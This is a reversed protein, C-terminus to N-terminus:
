RAQAAREFAEALARRTLVDVLHRRFAASAHIDSGPDVDDRAAAAAAARAAEATPLQGILAQAAQNASVPRDGVGLYVLRATQCRGREDLRVVAAVGAMAYDGHQRAAQKYSWGSRPPMPPLTVEVLLEDPQLVTAFTGVFFEGASAWREGAQSRIRCRAELAVCVAPLQGTPDAHAINGGFTGRNRIQEYAVHPMTEHLLPAREAILRDREVASDRAMAGIAVGGDGDARLYALEAINNLDILTSPQALRFNMLPILSQGGALPKADYGLQALRDLAEEVHTPAYYTFPAPKM